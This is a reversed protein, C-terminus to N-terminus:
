EGDRIRVIDLWKSPRDILIQSLSNVNAARCVLGVLLTEETTEIRAQAAQDVDTKEMDALSRKTTSAAAGVSPHGPVLFFGDRGVVSSSSSM